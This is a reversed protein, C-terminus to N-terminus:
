FSISVICLITLSLNDLHDTGVFNTFTFLIETVSNPITINQLNGCKWFACDKINKVGNGLTVTKLASCQDFAHNGITAANISISTLSTCGNFTYDGITSVSNPITISPLSTCNSFAYEGIKNVSNGLNVTTLGTCGNFARTEIQTMANHLQVSKLHKFNSFTYAHISTIEDPITVSTVEQNNIYLHAGSYLPNSTGNGYYGYLWRHISAVDVRSLFNCGYFAGNGITLNNNRPLILRTLGSCGYFASVGVIRAYDEMDVTLLNTCGYFARDGISDVYLDVSNLGTCNKFAENGIKKMYDNTVMTVKTLNATGEFANNDIGTVNYTTGNYTVTKPITIATASSYSYRPASNNKWTVKVTNTGTVRYCVNDKEFDYGFAVQPLLAVIATIIYLLNKM